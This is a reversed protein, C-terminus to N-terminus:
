SSIGQLSNEQKGSVPPQQLIHSWEMFRLITYNVSFVQKWNHLPEAKVWVNLGELLFVSLSKTCVKLGLLSSLTTSPLVIKSCSTELQTASLTIFWFFIQWFLIHGVRVLFSL